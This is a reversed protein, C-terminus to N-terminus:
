GDGRCSSEIRISLCIKNAHGDHMVDNKMHVKFSLTSVKLDSVIHSGFVNDDPYKPYLTIPGNDNSSSTVDVFMIDHRVRVTVLCTM